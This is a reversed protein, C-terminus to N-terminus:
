INLLLIAFIGFLLCIVQRRALKERFLIMAMIGTLLTVAGNFVPYFVISPLAGALYLNVRNLLAVVIGAAVSVGMVRFNQWEGSPDRDKIRFLMYLLFSFVACFAFTIVLFTNLEHAHPSTQHVRQIIAVVGSMATAAFINLAWKRDVKSKKPSIYVYLVCILLFLGLIRAPSVSARDSIIGYVSPIIFGCSYIFTNLSVPGRAQALIYFAQGGIIFVSFVIALVVTYLSPRGFGGDALVFVELVLFAISFIVTNTAWFRKGQSSASSVGRMLLSKGCSLAIAICLLITTMKEFVEDIVFVPPPHAGPTM